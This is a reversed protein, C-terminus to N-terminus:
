YEIYSSSYLSFDGVTESVSLEIELAVSFYIEEDLTGSYDNIFSDVQDDSEVRTIEGFGGFCDDVLANYRIEAKEGQLTVECNEPYFDHVIYNDYLYFNTELPSFQDPQM